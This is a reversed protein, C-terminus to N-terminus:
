RTIVGNGEPDCNQIMERIEAPSIEEKLEEACMM